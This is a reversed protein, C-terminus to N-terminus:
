RVGGACAMGWRIRKTQVPLMQRLGVASPTNRCMAACRPRASRMSTAEAEGEQRTFEYGDASRKWTLTVDPEGLMRAVTRGKTTQLIVM